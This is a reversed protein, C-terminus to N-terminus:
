KGKKPWSKEEERADMVALKNKAIRYADLQDKARLLMYDHRKNRVYSVHFFDTFIEDERVGTVESREM